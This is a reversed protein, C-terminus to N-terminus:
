IRSRFGGGDVQRNLEPLRAEQPAGLMTTPSLVGDAAYTWLTIRLGTLRLADNAGPPHLSFHHLSQTADHKPKHNVFGQM